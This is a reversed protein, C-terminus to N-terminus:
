RVQVVADLHEVKNRRELAHEVGGWGGLPTTTSCDRRAVQEVRSREVKSLHLPTIGNGM